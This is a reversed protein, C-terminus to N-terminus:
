SKVSTLILASNEPIWGVRGMGDRVQIYGNLQDLVSVEAGNNLSFAVPSKDLPGYRAIAETSIVVADRTLFQQKYSLFLGSGFMALSLLAVPLYTRCATRLNPRILPITLLSMLGFFSATAVVTWQNLTLKRVGRNWWSEPTVSKSQVSDRAFKLNARLDPDRPDMREALRYHVLARGIQGAKYSANGMNFLLAPSVYGSQQLKQYVGMAESYKGQEYLKNGRDFQENPSEALVMQVSCLLAVFWHAMTMPMRVTIRETWPTKDFSM